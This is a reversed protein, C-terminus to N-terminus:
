LPLAKQGNTERIISFIVNVNVKRSLGIIYEIGVFLEVGYSPNKGFTCGFLYEIM